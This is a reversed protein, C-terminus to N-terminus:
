QMPPRWMPYLLPGTEPLQIPKGTDRFGHRLYLERSRATSAELYAARGRSDARDLADTLLAGGVGHGRFAPRVAMASLFLHPEDPHVDATAAAVAAIRGGVASLVAAEARIPEASALDVWIAVGAIVDDAEALLVQGARIAPDLTARFFEPATAPDAMAWSFVAEDVFAEACAAVAADTDAVRATRISMDTM